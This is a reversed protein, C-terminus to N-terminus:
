AAAQLARNGMSRALRLGACSSCSCGSRYTPHIFLFGNVMEQGAKRCGACDVTAGHRWDELGITRLRPGMGDVLATRIGCYTHTRSPWEHIHTM